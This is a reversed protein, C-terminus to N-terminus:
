LFFIICSTTCSTGLGVAPHGLSLLSPALEEVVVEAVALSLLSPALEEAVVEAM